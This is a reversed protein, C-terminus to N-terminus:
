FKRSLLSDAKALSGLIAAKVKGVKLKEDELYKIRQEVEMKKAEWNMEEMWKNMAMDAYSLDKILSDLQAKYPAAAAQAAAPLKKISDILVNAEAQAKEIKSMKAMGVDHGEMVEEWLTDAKATNDTTKNEAQNNCAALVLLFTTTIAFLKKM